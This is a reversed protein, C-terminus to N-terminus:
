RANLLGALHDAVPKLSFEPAPAAQAASTRRRIVTAGHELAYTITPCRRACGHTTRSGAGKIPVNFDVRIFVRRGALDLDRISAEGRHSRQYLLATRSRPAAMVGRSHHGHRAPSVAEALAVALGGFSGSAFGQAL